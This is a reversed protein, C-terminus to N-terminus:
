KEVDEDKRRSLEWYARYPFTKSSIFNKSLDFNKATNKTFLRLYLPIYRRLYFVRPSDPSIFYPYPGLVILIM